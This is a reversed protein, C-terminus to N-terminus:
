GAEMLGSSYLLGWVICVAVLFLAWKLAPILTKDAYKEQKIARRRYYDERDDDDQSM